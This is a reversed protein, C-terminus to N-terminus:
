GKIIYVKVGSSDSGNLRCKVAPVSTGSYRLISLDIKHIWTGTVSGLIHGPYELINDSHAESLAKM